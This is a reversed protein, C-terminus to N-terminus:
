GMWEGIGDWMHELNRLAGRISCVRAFSEYVSQMLTFGGRNNIVYGIRRVAQEEKSGTGHIFGQPHREYIYILFDVAKEPTIDGDTLDNLTLDISEM